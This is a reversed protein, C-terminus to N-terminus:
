NRRMWELFEEIQFARSIRPPNSSQYGGPDKYDSAEDALRKAEQYAVWVPRIAEQYIREAPETAEQYTELALQIAEQLAGWAPEETEKYTEEALQTAKNFAETAQRRTEEWVPYSTKVEMTGGKIKIELEGM